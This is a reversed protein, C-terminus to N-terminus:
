AAVELAGPQTVVALEDYASLPTLAVTVQPIAAADPKFRDRLRDIDPL